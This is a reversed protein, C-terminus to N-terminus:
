LRGRDIWVHQLHSSVSVKIGFVNFFLQRSTGSYPRGNAGEVLCGFLSIQSRAPDDVVGLVYSEAVLCHHRHTVVRIHHLDM